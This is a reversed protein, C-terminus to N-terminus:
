DRSKVPKTSSHNVDKVAIRHIAQQQLVEFGRVDQSVSLLNREHNSYNRLIKEVSGVVIAHDSVKLFEKKICFMNAICEHIGYCFKGDDSIIPTLKYKEFKNIHSGSEMGSELIIHSLSEGPVAIAFFPENELLSYSYNVDHIAFCFTLPKYGCYMNFAIPLFNWRNHEKDKVIALVIRSPQFIERFANRDISQFM